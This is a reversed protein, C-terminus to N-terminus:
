KQYWIRKGDVLKWSKGKRVAAMKKRTEDSFSKRKKGRKAESMKERTADSVSIVRGRLSESIKKRTEASHKKGFFPHKEGKNGFFPNNEGKFCGNEVIKGKTLRHYAYSMKRKMIKSKCCHYLLEHVKVHDEYSLLVLNNDSNDIDLNQSKYWCKPIIHHKHGEKPPNLRAANIINMMDVFHQNHTFIENILM